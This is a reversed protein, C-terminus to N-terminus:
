LRGLVHAALEGVGTVHVRVDTLRPHLRGDRQGLLDVGCAHQLVADGLFAQGEDVAPVPEHNRGRGFFKQHLLDFRDDLVVTVDADVDDVGGTVLEGQEALGQGPVPD